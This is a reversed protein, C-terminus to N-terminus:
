ELVIGNKFGGRATKKDAKVRGVQDKIGYYDMFGEVVELVDALEEAMHVKDMSEMVETSEEMLKRKLLDMMEGPDAIRVPLKEGREAMVYAEMNDRILKM